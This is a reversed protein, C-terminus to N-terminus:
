DPTCKVLLKKVFKQLRLNAALSGDALAADIRPLDQLVGRGAGINQHGVESNGMQGEPLGVCKGSADVTAGPYDNLLSDLNPTEALAFGNNDKDSSIGVGDLIVLMARNIQNSTTM